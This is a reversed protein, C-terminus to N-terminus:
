SRDLDLLKGIALGVGLAILLSIIPNRSVQTGVVEQADHAYHRAQGYARRMQRASRRRWADARDGAEAGYDALQDRLDEIQSRLRDIEVRDSM